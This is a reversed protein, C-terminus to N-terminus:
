YIIKEFLRDNFNTKNSNSNEVIDKFNSSFTSFAGVKINKYM